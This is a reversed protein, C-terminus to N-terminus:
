VSGKTLPGDIRIWDIGNESEALAIRGTGLMAPAKQNFGLDRCYYWLRYKKLKQDWHVSGLGVSKDDCGGKPGPSLILGSHLKSTTMVFDRPNM